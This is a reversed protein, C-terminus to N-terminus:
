CIFGFRGIRAKTKPAVRKKTRKAMPTKWQRNRLICGESTWGVAPFLLNSLMLAVCIVM